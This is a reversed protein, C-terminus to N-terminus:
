PLLVLALVRGKQGHGAEMGPLLLREELRGFGDTARQLINKM